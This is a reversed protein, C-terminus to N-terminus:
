SSPLINRQKAKKGHSPNTKHLIKMATTGIDPLPPPMLMRNILRPMKRDEEDMVVVVDEESVDGDGVVDGVANGRVDGVAALEVIQM